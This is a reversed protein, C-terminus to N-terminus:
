SEPRQGSCGGRRRHPWPGARGDRGAPTPARVARVTPGTTDLLDALATMHLTLANGFAAQGLHVPLPLSNATSVWDYGSLGEMGPLLTAFARAADGYAGPRADPDDELTGLLRMQKTTAMWYQALVALALRDRSGADIDTMVFEEYLPVVGQGPAADAVSAM